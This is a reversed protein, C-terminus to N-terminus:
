LPATCECDGTDTCLANPDCGRCTCVYGNDNVAATCTAEDQLFVPASLSNWHLM